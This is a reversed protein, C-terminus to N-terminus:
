SVARNRGRCAHTSPIRHRNGCLSPLSDMVANRSSHARPFELFVSDAPPSSDRSIPPRLGCDAPVRLPRFAGRGDLSRRAPASGVVTHWANRRRPIAGGPRGRPPVGIGATISRKRRVRLPGMRRELQRRPTRPDRTGLGASFGAGMWARRRRGSARRRYERIRNGTPQPVPVCGRPPPDVDGEGRPAPTSAGPFALVFPM